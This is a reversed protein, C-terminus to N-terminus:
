ETYVKAFRSLCATWTTLQLLAWEETLHESPIIVDMEISIAQQAQSFRLFRSQINLTNIEDQSWSAPLEAFAAFTFIHFNSLSDGDKEVPLFTITYEIGESASLIQSIRNGAVSLKARFGHEQLLDAVQKPSM